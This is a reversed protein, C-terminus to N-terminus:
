PAPSAPPTTSSTPAEGPLLARLQAKGEETLLSPDIDAALVRRIADQVAPPPPEPAPAVGQPGGIGGVSSFLGGWDVGISPKAWDGTIHVPIPLATPPPIVKIRIEQNLKRAPLNVSGSSSIAVESGDMALDPSSKMVGKRIDYQAELKSFGTKRALDFTWSRWWESIMRRLDFGRIAGQGMQFKAKGDLTTTLQSQTQGSAAATIEVNGDGSLLPKGTFETVIPEAPVNDMSLALTGRPPSARSDVTFSGITKGKGMDLNEIKADLQGDLLVAKVRANKMELSGYAVENSTVVVDLDISRLSKLNFPKDSWASSPTTAVATAPKPAAGRGTSAELENLDTLLADWGPSVTLEPGEAAAPALGTRGKDPTSRLRSLDLHEATVTGELKPRPGDLGLRGDVRSTIGNVAVDTGILLVSGTTAKIKGAMSTRLPEGETTVDAGLWRLLDVASGTSATLDGAIESTEAMIAEGTINAKAYRSDIAATIRSKRGAMIALIDALTVDFAVSEGKLTLRGQVRTSDDAVERTLSATIDQANASGGTKTSSYTLTGGAVSAARPLVPGVSGTQGASEFTWNKTGESDETLVIEPKTVVVNSLEAKGRLLPRLPLWVDVTEAKLLGPGTMGEPNAVAVDSLTLRVEPGWALSAGGITITRGLDRSAIQALKDKLANLPPFAVLILFVSAAGLAVVGILRMWVPARTPVSFGPSSTM